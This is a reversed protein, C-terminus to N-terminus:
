SDAGAILAPLHRRAAVIAEDITIPRGACRSLDSMIDPDLGCPRIQHFATLDM